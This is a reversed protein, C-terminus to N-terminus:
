AEYIQERSGRNQSVTEWAFLLPLHQPHRFQKGLPVGPTGAHSWNRALLGISGSGFHIFCLWGISGSGFHIFCGWGHFELGFEVFKSTLSPLLHFREM